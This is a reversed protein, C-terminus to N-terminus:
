DIHSPRNVHWECILKVDSARYGEPTIVKQDFEAMKEAARRKCEKFDYPLPGITGGILGAIYIVIFLKM